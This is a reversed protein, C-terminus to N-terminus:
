KEPLMPGLDVKAAGLLTGTSYALDVLGMQYQTIAYIEAIKANALATQAEFVDNATRMGLEYQRKEAEYQRGSYIASQRSALLHQWGTKVLDIGKLVESEILAKKNEISTLQKAREYEAQRLSSKGAKNGIPVSANLTVIHSHHENDFLMDYSDHRSAGFGTIFYVYQLNLLPLLQNRRYGITNENLALRLEMELMDMRNEIAKKVIQEKDFEYHVPDPDTSLILETDTRISLGPKNLTRKLLREYDRVTNKGKIVAEVSSAMGARTRILEIGAKSGLEVQRETEELLNKALRYEQKRVDLLRRAAYLGWYVSEINAITDIAAQKTYTDVIQRQYEALQIGYTAARTGANRLLAHGISATTQSTYAPDYFKPSNKETMDNINFNFTGGSRLPVEVGSRVSSTETKTGTIEDLEGAVPSNTKSEEADISFVAEFRADQANVREAAIAPEILQVKLNLNNELTLARCEELTLKLEAPTKEGEEDISIKEAGTGKAEALELIDIQQLKEQPVIYTYHDKGSFIHSCGAFLFLGSLVAVSLLYSALKIKIKIRV